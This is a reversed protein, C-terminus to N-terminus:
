QWPALLSIMQRGNRRYHKFDSDLTFIRCHEHLEAMRVLCADALSMPTDQYRKMLVEIPAAERELNFAVQFIGRQFLKLVDVASGGHRHVLFCAEALVPECTFLPPRMASFQTVAWAHSRDRASLYAVLPGTDLLTRTM